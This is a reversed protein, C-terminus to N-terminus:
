LNHIEVPEIQESLKFDFVRSYFYYEADLARKINESRRFGHQEGEFPVYAVPLGKSRLAAVMKEAQNPPVVKDELGQFFIIPSSLRETHHIPSREIYRDRADPYPGVMSDLYRSEFKHTELALAELDSVGFYSAGVTFVDGFTLACLTTYGGASGGRIILRQPDADGRSVLYSAANACDQVDVMGWQGNLRQRYERGYGTSGGYNVDLIGFGRTTWYQISLSLSSSTASTPGGHSIVILPPKEGKPTAFEANKPPYYFAHATLGGETPFAIAQPISLYDDDVEVDSAKRLVESERSQLNLTVVASTDTPSAAIMVIDNKRVKIDGVYTFPTDMIELENTNLDIVGIKWQGDQSLTCAIESASMFGYTVMGFVWQPRGFEAEMEVVPAVKNEQWHYLNWWNNRDSVFYLDGAPSWEPQFISEHEGGAVLEPKGLTGDPNFEAVWLETGDWPMNPHNWTLWAVRSGLPDIRPSSYFDNGTILIRPQPDDHLPISVLSNVAEEGANGHDEGICILRHHQPDFVADAFRWDGETTLASPEGEPPAEYIRQDNFNSFYVVGDSVIFAGGGYEHVRTRANFPAPNVDRQSGDPSRHVIVSRGGESPRMETWYIDEGETIIQGLGISEAVILDSTIPSKWTGYPAVTRKKAM